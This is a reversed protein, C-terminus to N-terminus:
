AGTSANQQQNQKELSKKAAEINQKVFEQLAAMVNPLTQDKPTIVNVWQPGQITKLDTAIAQQMGGFHKVLIAQIQQDVTQGTSTNQNQQQAPQQQQQPQQAPVQQQQQPQQAPQAQMQQQAPQQQQASQQTQVEGEFLRGGIVMSNGALFGKNNLRVKVSM